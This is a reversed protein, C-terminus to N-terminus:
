ERAYARCQLHARAVDLWAGENWGLSALGSRDLSGSWLRSLARVMWTSCKTLV